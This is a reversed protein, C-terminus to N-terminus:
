LLCKKWLLVKGERKLHWPNLIPHTCLVSAVRHWKFQICKHYTQSLHASPKGIKDSLWNYLCMWLWQHWFRRLWTAVGVSKTKRFDKLFSFVWKLNFGCHPLMQTEPIWLTRDPYCSGVNCACVYLWAFVWDMLTPCTGRILSM